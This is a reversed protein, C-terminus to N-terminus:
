HKQNLEEGEFVEKTPSLVRIWHKQFYAANRQYSFWLERCGFAAEEIICINETRMSVPFIHRIFTFCTRKQIRELRRKQITKHRDRHRSKQVSTLM